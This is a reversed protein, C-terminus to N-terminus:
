LVLNIKFILADTIILLKSINEYQKNSINYTHPFINITLLANCKCEKKIQEICLNYASVCLDPFLVKILLLAKSLKKENEYFLKISKIKKINYQKENLNKIFAVLDLGFEANFVNISLEECSMGNNEYLNDVICKYSSIKYPLDNVITKLFTVDDSPQIKSDDLSEFPALLKKFLKILEDTSWINRQSLLSSIYTNSEISIM